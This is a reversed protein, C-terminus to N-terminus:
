EVGVMIRYLYFSLVFSGLSGLLEISEHIHKNFYFLENAAVIIIIIPIYYLYYFTKKGFKKQYFKAIASILIM